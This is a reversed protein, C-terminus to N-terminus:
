ILSMAMPTSLRILTKTLVATMSHLGPWLMRLRLRMLRLAPNQSLRERPGSRLEAPAAISGATPRALCGNRWPETPAAEAGPRGRGFAGVGVEDGAV